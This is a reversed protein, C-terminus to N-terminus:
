DVLDAGGHLAGRGAVAPGEPMEVDLALRHGDVHQTLFQAGDCNGTNTNSNGGVPGCAVAFAALSVAALVWFSTRNWM